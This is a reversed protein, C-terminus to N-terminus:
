RCDSRNPGTYFAARLLQPSAGAARALFLSYGSALRCLTGQLLHLLRGRALNEQMEVSLMTEGLLQEEEALGLSRAAVISEM